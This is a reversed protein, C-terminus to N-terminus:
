RVRMVRLMHALPCPYNPSSDSLMGYSRILVNGPRSPMSTPTSAEIGLSLICKTDLPPKPNFQPVFICADYGFWSM